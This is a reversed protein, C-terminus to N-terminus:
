KSVYELKRSHFLHFMTLFFVVSAFSVAGILLPVEVNNTVDRAVGAIAPGIAMGIYFWTYFVGLGPGRNEPSLVLSPLTVMAGPPGGVWLGFLISLLVPDSLYPFLGITLAALLSFIVIMGNPRGIRETLYGGLPVSFMTIWIGLSTLAGADATSMGRAILLDPTFSFYVAFGINFVAWALGAMSVPIFERLPIKLVNANEETTMAPIPSHYLITTLTFALLSLAATLYMVLTWSFIHAIAGQSVLGFAIGFPWSALMVGMATRIERGAFWDTVMKTAVVNLLVVGIGSIIRGAFAMAYSHSLGLIVGGTAMLLLGYCAVRKDGFTKSLLGSPLAMVIGPFMYIGILTGIEAYGISLDKIM